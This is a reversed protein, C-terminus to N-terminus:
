DRAATLRLDQINLDPTFKVQRIVGEGLRDLSSGNFTIATNEGKGTTLSVYQQAKFQKSSGPLLTGDFVDRGDAEISVWTAGDKIKISLDVPSQDTNDTNDAYSKTPASSSGAESASLAM